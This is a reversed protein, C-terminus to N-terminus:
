KPTIKVLGFQDGLVYLSGDHYEVDRIRLSIKGKVSDNIYEKGDAVFFIEDKIIKDHDFVYRHLHKGRLSAVFLDGFWPSEPDSVFEMGSPAMTWTKTCYIPFIVEGSPPFGSYREDCRYNGWGYNKGPQIHNIEDYRKPGHESSYLEKTRPDWALGQPNRHGKSYTYSKQIPNDVPISGDPNLRLIKGGLFNSSQAKLLEHADGTTAYFKGDPGFELRSGSHNLSGPIEDLIVVEDSLLGNKFTLRSIKNKVRRQGEYRTSGLFEKDFEYTYYIYVFGNLTFEPDVALGLLGSERNSIPNVQYAIQKSSAGLYIIKGDQETVLMSGDPLFELDWPRVLEDNVLEVSFKEDTFPVPVYNKDDAILSIDTLGETTKICPAKPSQCGKKYYKIFKYECYDTGKSCDLVKHGQDKEIDEKIQHEQNNGYGIQVILVFIAGTLTLLSGILLRDM